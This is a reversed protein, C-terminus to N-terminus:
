GTPPGQLWISILEIFGHLIIKALESDYHKYLLVTFNIVLLATIAVAMMFTTLKNDRLKKFSFERGEGMPIAPNEVTELSVNKIVERIKPDFAEVAAMLELPTVTEEDLQNEMARFRNIAQTIRAVEEPTTRAGQVMLEVTEGLRM